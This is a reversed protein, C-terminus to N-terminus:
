SEVVEKLEVMSWFLLSWTQIMQVWLQRSLDGGDPVSLDLVLMLSDERNIWNACCVYVMSSVQSSETSGMTVKLVQIYDVYNVPWPLLSRLGSSIPSNLDLCWNEKKKVMFTLQWYSSFPLPRPFSFQFAGKMLLSMCLLICGDFYIAPVGNKIRMTCLHKTYTLASWLLAVRSSWSIRSVMLNYQQFKQSYM